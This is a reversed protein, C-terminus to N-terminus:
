DQTLFQAGGEIEEVEGSRGVFLVEDIRREEKKIALRERLQDDPFDRGRGDFV